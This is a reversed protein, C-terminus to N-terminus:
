FFFFYEYSQVTIIDTGYWSPQYVEFTCKYFAQCKNPTAKLLIGCFLVELPYGSGTLNQSDFRVRTINNNDTNVPFLEKPIKKWFLGNTKFINKM